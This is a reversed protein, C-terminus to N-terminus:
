RGGQTEPDPEGPERGDSRPRDIRCMAQVWLGAGALVLGSIAVGVASAVASRVSAADVDPLAVGAYALYAGTVLAGTLACAQALRLIRYAALPEVPRKATGRITARVSRGAIVLACAAVLLVPAVLWTVPPLTAGRRFWWSLVVYALAAAGVGVTGVDRARLGHESLSM